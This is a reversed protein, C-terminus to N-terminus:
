SILEVESVSSSILMVFKNSANVKPWVGVNGCTCCNIAPVVPTKRPQLGEMAMSSEDTYKHQASIAFVLVVYCNINNPM